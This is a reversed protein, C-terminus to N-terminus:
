SITLWEHDCWQVQLSGSMIVDNFKRHAV